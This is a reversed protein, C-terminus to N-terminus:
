IKSIIDGRIKTVSINKLKIRVKQGAEVKIAANFNCFINLHSTIQVFICTHTISKVEGLVVDGVTYEGALEEFKPLIPQRDLIIETIEGAENKVIDTIVAEVEDSINVHDTINVIFIHEIKRKPLMAIYDAGINVFCGIKENIDTIVGKVVDGIKLDDRWKDRLESIIEKRSIYVIGNDVKKVRFKIYVGVKNQCLSKHVLGDKEVTITVDNRAMICDTSGYQIVLNGNIDCKTCYGTFIKKSNVSTILDSYNKDLEQNITERKLSSELFVDDNKILEANM